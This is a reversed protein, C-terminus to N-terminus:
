AHDPVTKRQSRVALVAAVVAVGVTAILSWWWQQPAAFGVVAGALAGVALGLLSRQPAILQLALLLALLGVWLLGPRQGLWDLLHISM